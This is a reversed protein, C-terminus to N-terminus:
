IGSFISENLNRLTCNIAMWDLHKMTEESHEFYVSLDIVIDVNINFTIMLYMVCFLNCKM